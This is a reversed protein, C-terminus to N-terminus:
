KESCVSKADVRWTLTEEHDVDIVRHTEAVDLPEFMAEAFDFM